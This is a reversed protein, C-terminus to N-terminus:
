VNEEYGNGSLLYYDSWSVANPATDISFAKRGRSVSLLDVEDDTLFIDVNGGGYNKGSGFPGTTQQLYTLSEPNRLVRSVQRAVVMKIVAVSLSEADIRDQIKPFKSLIVAEADDILATVLEEENIIPDNGVWRDAVDSYSTWAM